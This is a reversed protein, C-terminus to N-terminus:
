KQGPASKAGGGMLTQLERVLGGGELIETASAADSWDQVITGSPNVVFLHPTDYSSRSPTLKFYAAAVQGQDFVIQTTLKNDMLYRGVTATNEPPAVVISLIAVQTGFQSKVQELVRSLALCHPCDTRMFDLLLWKGRYDLIDHQTAASDPLSFSPARRGSLSQASAPVLCTLFLVLIRM